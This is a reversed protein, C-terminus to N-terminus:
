VGKVEFPFSFLVQNYSFGSKDLPVAAEPVEELVVDFTQQFDWLGFVRVCAFCYINNPNIIASPKSDNHWPCFCKNKDSRAYGKAELFQRLTM